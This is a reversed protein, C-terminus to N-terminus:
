RIVRGAFVVAVTVRAALKAATSAATTQPPTATATTNAPRTMRHDAWRAIATGRCGSRKGGNGMTRALVKALM